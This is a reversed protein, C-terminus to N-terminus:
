PTAEDVPALVDGTLQVSAGEFIGTVIFVLHDEVALQVNCVLRDPESLWKSTEAPITDSRNEDRSPPTYVTGPVGGSSGGSASASFSQEASLTGVKVWESSQPPANLLLPADVSRLDVTLLPQCGALALALLPLLFRSPHRM